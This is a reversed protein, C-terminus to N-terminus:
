RRRFDVVHAALYTNQIDFISLRSQDANNTDRKKAAEIETRNGTSAAAWLEASNLTQIERRLKVGTKEPTTVVEKSMCDTGHIEIVEEDPAHLRNTGSEAASLPLPGAAPVPISTIM